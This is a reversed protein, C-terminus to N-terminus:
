EQFADRAESAACWSHRAMLVSRLGPMVGSSVAGVRGCPSAMRRHSFAGRLGVLLVMWWDPDHADSEVPSPTCNAPRGRSLMFAWYANEMQDCRARRVRM